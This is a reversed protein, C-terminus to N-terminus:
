TPEFFQAPDDYPYYRFVFRRVNQPPDAFRQTLAPEALSLGYRRM